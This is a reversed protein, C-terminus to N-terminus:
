GDLTTLKLDIKEKLRNADLNRPDIVFARDAHIKAKKYDEMKFYIDALIADPKAVELNKMQAELQLAYKLAEEYNKTEATLIAKFGLLFPNAHQDITLLKNLSDLSREAGYQAHLIEIYECKLYVEDPYAHVIKRFNQEGLDLAEQLASKTQPSKQDRLNTYNTLASYVDLILREDGTITHKSEEIIKYLALREELDLTLRALVSKGVLFTSDHELSKRYSVEAAAYDGFDMIQEWGRKYYILTSDVTTSYNVLKVEPQSNCSLMLVSLAVLIIIRNYLM